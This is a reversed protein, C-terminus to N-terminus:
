LLEVRGDKVTLGLKGALLDCLKSGLLEGRWGTCVACDREGDM